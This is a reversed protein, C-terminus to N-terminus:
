HAKRLLASHLAMLKQSVSFQVQDRLVMPKYTTQKHVIDHTQCSAGGMEDGMMRRKRSKDATLIWNYKGIEPVKGSERETYREKEENKKKPWRPSIRLSVTSLCSNKDKMKRVVKEKRRWFFTSLIEAAGSV